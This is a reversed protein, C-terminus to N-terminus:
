RIPSLRSVRAPVPRSWLPVAYCCYYRGNRYLSNRYRGYYQDLEFYRYQLIAVPPGCEGCHYLRHGNSFFRLGLMGIGPRFYGTGGARGCLSGRLYLYYQRDLRKSPTFPAAPPASTVSYGITSGTHINCGGASVTLPGSISGIRQTGTGAYGSVALGYTTNAPVTLSIGQLFPQMVTTTTNAIGNVTASAAMTWGNATNIAGPLGNVGSTKYWLAVNHSGYADLIGSIGTIVVPFSNTNEFNFTVTAASESNTVSATTSLVTQAFAGTIGSLFVLLLLWAHTYVTTSVRTFKRKMHSLM